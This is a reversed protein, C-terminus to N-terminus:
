LFLAMIAPVKIMAAPNQPPVNYYVELRIGSSIMSADMDLVVVAFGGHM